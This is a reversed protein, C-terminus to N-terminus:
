SHVSDLHFNLSLAIIFGLSVIGSVPSTIRDSRLGMESVRAIDSPEDAEKDIEYTVTLMRDWTVVWSNQSCSKAFPIYSIPATPNPPPLPPAPSTPPALSNSDSATLWGAPLIECRWISKKISQTSPARTLGRPWRLTVSLM